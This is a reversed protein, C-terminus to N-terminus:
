GASICSPSSDWCRAPIAGYDHQDWQWLTQSVGAVSFSRVKEITSAKLSDTRFWLYAPLGTMNQIVEEPSGLLVVCLHDLHSPIHFHFKGSTAGLLQQASYAISANGSMQHYMWIRSFRTQDPFSQPIFTLSVLHKPM